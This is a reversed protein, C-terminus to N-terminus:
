WTYRAVGKGAYSTSVGSFEGEFTAALAFGNLWKMEASATTLASDHAQAAGNVVFSAGPLTQFVAAINRDPNFDHAWALRGRLTLIGNQMAFSKDTRLGLESRTDTVSMANYSLAFTNAGSVATEAYAPLDFNTFQGAAYPTVGMWPTVFRYGGEVRGSFAGANFEARLQDTGAITVTRNTTVDQWGYALAATIYAPGVTHRVFAGAQFLDSRGSGSGNVSFSTGGGALAFGATTFPSFRYDAGVVTGYVSSTTSNSGLATNGGTTQSGGYGASWVSWRQDFSPVPAKTFMAYADRAAGTKQTSAYGTLTSGGATVSDGRGDIFPDTLLSMFLSMANITTQQSGTALEGSAQTLGAPTLSVFAAPIGGNANFFKNLATGVNQQNVNLGPTAGYDLAFNLYAHTPDYSLSAVLSAPLGLTGVGTFTGSRGGAATLITYQKMVNSGVAVSAGVLGNLTATGTVSTFTSTVSNLQVLYLAGPQFVLNGAVTMFSGPPGNGPLFTGGSAITTNGVTGAGTLAANVNVTTLSSSAISGEVDLVGGFVTTTGSYTNTGSLTLTGTGVKELAGPGAPGCGCPNFDAIVGSVTTSLNNSGVTLTNGAGIYYSGSGAISGATIRGDGNPGLSESFDVYGTGNTIFQANGGTSNDFFLTKGGGNTTIVANGATSFANFDTEGGSNNTISANGATPTDTGFAQGFSTLGHNNNVINAQDASSNAGFITRGGFGNTITSTGAMSSGAFVTAAGIRNVITATGATSTALFETESGALNTIVANGASSSGLYHLLGGSDNTIATIGASTSNVVNFVGENEIAGVMSGSQAVTGLQLTGCSCITTGGSYTNAGTFVVKGGTGGGSAVSDVITLAGPGNGDTINGSITLIRGNSDIASGSSTNNVAFNNSFTLNGAGAQFQGNDLTVTGTGVSSSVGPNSDTVRVTGFNSILTGGSYSNAGSLVLTGSGIQNVQGNGFILGSFAVNNSRNFALVGLDLVNGAISGTTGGNGLQLTGAAIATGGSYTNAGTLVLTSNGLQQLQAGAASEGLNNSISITQGANANNFLGGTASFNVNAGTITYSQSNANFIWSDPAIAGAGVTVTSRGTTDFIASQGAAIPAGTPGWNTGLKYNATTTTSGPGGWVSQARASTVPLLLVFAVAAGCLLVAVSQRLRGLVWSPSRLRLALGV